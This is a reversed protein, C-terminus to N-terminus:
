ARPIKTSRRILKYIGIASFLIATGFLVYSMKTGKTHFIWGAAILIVGSLIILFPKNKRIAFVLMCAAGFLYICALLLELGWKAVFGGASEPFGGDPIQQNTIVQSPPLWGIDV